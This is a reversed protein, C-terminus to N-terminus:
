KADRKLMVAGLDLPKSPGVDPGYRVQKIFPAYGACAVSLTYTERSPSLTFSTSLNPPVFSGGGAWLANPPEVVGIKCGSLMAGDAAM